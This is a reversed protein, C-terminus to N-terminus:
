GIVPPRNPGAVRRRGTGSESAGLLAEENNLASDSPTLPLDKARIPVYEELSAVEVRSPCRNRSRSDDHSLSLNSAVRNKLGKQILPSRTVVGGIPAEHLVDEVPGLVLVIGVSDAVLKAM